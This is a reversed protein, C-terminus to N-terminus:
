LNYYKKFYAIKEERLTKGAHGILDYTNTAGHFMENINNYVFANGQNNYRINDWVKSEMHSTSHNPLINKVFTTNGFWINTRCGDLPNNPGGDDQAITMFTFKQPDVKTPWELYANINDDNM